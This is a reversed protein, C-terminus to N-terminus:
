QHFRLSRLTPCLTILYSTNWSRVLFLPSPSPDTTRLWHGTEKKSSPMYTQMKGTLSSTGLRCHFHSFGNSSHPSKKAANKLVWCPIQDPGTAKKVDLNGLLKALGATDFHLQSINPFAQPLSPLNELDKQTHEMVDLISRAAESARNPPPPPICTGTQIEFRIM